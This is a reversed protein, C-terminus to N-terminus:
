KRRKRGGFLYDLSLRGPGAGLLFLCGGLMSANKMFHIMQMRDGFDGHFILTAPILFLILLLTGWRTLFGLIVTLSGALELFIAGLLFFSTYPMGAKAMYQAADEFHGVKGIGSKLFVLVLLVRGILMASAKMWEM